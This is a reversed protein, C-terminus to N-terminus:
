RRNRRNATEKYRQIYGKETALDILQKALSTLERDNIDGFYGPNKNNNRDDRLKLALEIDGNELAQISKRICDKLKNNEEFNEFLKIYKM